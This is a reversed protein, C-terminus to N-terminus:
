GFKSNLINSFDDMRFTSKNNGINMVDFYLYSLNTENNDISNQQFINSVFNDNIQSKSNDLLNYYKLVNNYYNKYCKYSIKNFIQEIQFNRNEYDKLIDEGILMYGELKKEADRKDKIKNLNNDTNININNEYNKNKMDEIEKVLLPMTINRQAISSNIKEKLRLMNENELIFNDMSFNAYIRKYKPFSQSERRIYIQIENFKKNSKRITIDKKKSFGIYEEFTDKYMKINEEKRRKVEQYIQNNVLKKGHEKEKEKKLSQREIILKSILEIKNQLKKIKQNNLQPLTEPKLFDQIIKVNITLTHQLDYLKNENSKKGKQKPREKHILKPSLNKETQIYKTEGTTGQSSLHNNQYSVETKHPIYSPETNLRYTNNKQQKSYNNSFYNKKM